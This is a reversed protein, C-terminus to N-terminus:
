RQLLAAQMPCLRHHLRKPSSIARLLLVLLVLMVRLLRPLCPGRLHACCPWLARQTSNTKGGRWTTL